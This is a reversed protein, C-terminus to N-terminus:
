KAVPQAVPQPQSQAVLFPAVYEVWMVHSFYALVAASLWVPWTTAWWYGSAQAGAIIAFVALVIAGVLLLFGVLRIM